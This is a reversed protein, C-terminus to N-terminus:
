AIRNRVDNRPSLSLSRDRRRTLRVIPPTRHIDTTTNECNQEDDQQDVEERLDACSCCPACTSRSSTFAVVAPCRAQARRRLLDSESHPAPAIRPIGVAEQSQRWNDRPPTVQGERNRRREHLRSPGRTLRSDLNTTTNVGLPQSPRRHGDSHLWGDVLVRPSHTTSRGLAINEGEGGGLPMSPRAFTM